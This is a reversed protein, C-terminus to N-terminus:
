NLGGPPVVARLVKGAFARLAEEYKAEEQSSPANPAAIRDIKDCLEQIFTDNFSENAFQDDQSELESRNSCSEFFAINTDKDAESLVHASFANIDDKREQTQQLIVEEDLKSLVGLRKFVALMVRSDLSDDSSPDNDLISEQPADQGDLEADDVAEKIAKDLASEIEAGWGPGGKMPIGRMIKKFQRAAKRAAWIFPPRIIVVKGRFTLWNWETSKAGGPVGRIALFAADSYWYCNATVLHYKPRKEHVELLLDAVTMLSLSTFALSRMLLPLPEKSGGGSSSGGSSVSTCHEFFSTTKDKPDVWPWFGVIIQDQNTQREALLRRWQKTSKNRIIVHLYEHLVKSDLNKSHTVSIVDCTDFLGENRFYDHLKTISVKTVGTSQETAM